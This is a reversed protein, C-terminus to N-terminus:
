PTPRSGFITVAVSRATTLARDIAPDRLAHNRLRNARRAVYAEVSGNTRPFGRWRTASSITQAGTQAASRDPYFQEM